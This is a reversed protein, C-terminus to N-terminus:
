DSGEAGPCAVLGAVDEPDRLGLEQLVAALPGLVDTPLRQRYALVLGTGESM